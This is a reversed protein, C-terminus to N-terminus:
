NVGSEKGSIRVSHPASFDEFQASATYVSRDGDDGGKDTQSKPSVATPALGGGGRVAEIQPASSLDISAQDGFLSLPVRGVVCSIEAGGEGADDGVLSPTPNSGWEGVKKAAQFQRASDQRKEMNGNTNQEISLGTVKEGADVDPPCVNATNIVKNVRVRSQSINDTDTNNEGSLGSGCVSPTPEQKCDGAVQPQIGAANEGLKTLDEDGSFESFSNDLSCGGDQYQKYWIGSERRAWKFKRPPSPSVPASLHTLVSAEEISLKENLSERIALVKSKHVMSKWRRVVRGDGTKTEDGQKRGAVPVTDVVLVTPKQLDTEASDSNPPITVSLPNLEKPESALKAKMPPKPLVSPPSPRPSSSRFPPSTPRLFPSTPRLVPSTSRFLPSTPRPMPSKSRAPEPQESLSIKRQLETVKELVSSVREKPQNDEGECSSQTGLDVDADDFVFQPPSRPCVGQRRAHSMGFEHKCTMVEVGVSFTDVSDKLSLKANQKHPVPLEASIPHDDAFALDGYRIIDQDVELGASEKVPTHGPKRPLPSHSSSPRANTSRIETINHVQGSRVSVSVEPKVGPRSVARHPPDSQVETFPLRRAPSMQTPSRVQVTRSDLLHGGKDEFVQLERPQVGESKRRFKSASVVSGCVSVHSPLAASPYLVGGHKDRMRSAMVDDSDSCDTDGCDVSNIETQACDSSTNIWHSFDSSSSGCQSELVFSLSRPDLPVSGAGPRGTNPNDGSSQCGADATNDNIHPAAHLGSAALGELSHVANIPGSKAHPPVVLRHNCAEEKESSLVGREDEEEQRQMNIEERLETEGNQGGMNSTDELPGHIRGQYRGRDDRRPATFSSSASLRAGPTICGGSEPGTASCSRGPVEGSRYISCRNDGDQGLSRGKNAGSNHDDQGSTHKGGSKM